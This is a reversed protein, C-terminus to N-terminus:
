EAQHSFFCQVVPRDRFPVADNKVHSVNFREVPIQERVACKTQPGEVWGEILQKREADIRYAASQRRVRRGIPRPAVFHLPVLPAHALFQVAGHFARQFPRLFSVRVQHLHQVHGDLVAEHM